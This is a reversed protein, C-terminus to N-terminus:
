FLIMINTSLQDCHFKWKEKQSTGFSIEFSLIGNWQIFHWCNSKNIIINYNNHIEKRSCFWQIIIKLHLNVISQHLFQSISIKLENKNFWSYITGCTLINLSLKEFWEM